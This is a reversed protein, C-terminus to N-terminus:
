YSCPRGRRLIGQRRVSPFLLRKRHSSGRRSGPSQVREGAPATNNTWLFEKTVGGIHGAGLRHVLDNEVFYHVAQGFGNLLGPDFNQVHEKLAAVGGLANFTLLSLKASDFQAQLRHNSVIDYAAYQALAGGLSQGVFHIRFSSSGTGSDFFQALYTRVQPSNADWQNWGVHLINGWWDRADPGDTGAFALIIDKTLEDRYAIAKFGSPDQPNDFIADVRYSTSIFAFQPGFPPRLIAMSPHTTSRGYPTALPRSADKIARM